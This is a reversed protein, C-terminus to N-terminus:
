KYTAFEYLCEDTIYRKTLNKLLKPTIANVTLKISELNVWPSQGKYYALLRNQTSLSGSAMSIVYSQAAKFEEKDINGLKINEIIKKAEKRISPLEKAKCGIHFSFDYANSEAPPNFSANVGYISFNKEYRLDMLREGLIRSLMQLGLYEQSNSPIDTLVYRILYQTKESNIITDGINNLAPHKQAKNKQKLRPQCKLKSNSQPLNGIYKQALCLLAPEEINGRVVFTFDQTQGFLQQYSQYATDLDTQKVGIWLQEGVNTYTNRGMLQEIRNKFNFFSVDYPSQFYEIKKQRKWYDFAKTDYRPQTMYLYMMQFWKELTETSAKGKIGSEEAEVYPRITFLHPQQEIFRELDFKNWTGIGSQLVINASNRAAYTSPEPFCHSGWPSFGTIEIKGEKYRATTDKHFILRAGNKFIFRKGGSKTTGKAKIKQSTLSAMVENNLLSQDWTEPLYPKVPKQLTKDILNRVQMETYNAAASGKTAIVAIDEPILQIIKKLEQNFQTLSMENWWQKLLTKKHAPLAEGAVFHRYIEQSWYNTSTTDQYDLILDQNKVVEEWEKPHVGFEKLQHLYSIFTELAKESYGVEFDILANHAKFSMVVQSRYTHKNLFNFHIDYSQQLKNLREQLLQTMSQWLFLQKLGEIRHIKEQTYPDRFGLYLRNRNNKVQTTEKEGQTINIWGPPQMKLDCNPLPKPNIPMPISGFMHKIKAKLQEPHEINGVVGIAMLDPRYWTAYFDRLEKAPFNTNYDFFNEWSPYCPNIHQLMKSKARHASLNQVRTNFEQLLVGRENEIDEDTLKLGHAIDKFWLLATHIGEPNSSAVPFQYNTSYYGSAANVDRLNRIGAKALRLSDVKLGEPFHTSSKFAMHELFHALNPQQKGEQIAGAKVWFSMKIDSTSENLPKIYYTLGNPLQGHIISSDVPPAKKSKAVQGYCYFQVGLLLLIISFINLYNNNTKM